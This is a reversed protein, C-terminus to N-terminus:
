DGGLNKIENIKKGIIRVNKASLYDANLILTEGVM